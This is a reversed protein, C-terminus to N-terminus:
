SAKVLDALPDGQGKDIAIKRWQESATMYPTAARAAREDNTKFMLEAIARKVVAMYRPSPTSGEEHGISSEDM